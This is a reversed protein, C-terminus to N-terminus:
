RAAARPQGPGVPPLVLDVATVPATSDGSGSYSMTGFDVGDVYTTPTPATQALVPPTRDGVFTFVFEQYSVDYGAGVM